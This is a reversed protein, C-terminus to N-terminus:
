KVEVLDCSRSCLGWLPKEEGPNQLTKCWGYKMLARPDVCAEEHRHERNIYIISSKTLRALDAKTILLNKLKDQTTQKAAEYYSKCKQMDYGFLGFMGFMHSDKRCKMKNAKLFKMDCVRFRSGQLSFENTMCSSYEPDRLGQRPQPAEDYQEGWGVGRLTNGNLTIGVRPLCLPIVKANALAGLSHLAKRDFFVDDIVAMGIDEELIRLSTEDIKMIYAEQAEWQYLDAEPWVSWYREAM